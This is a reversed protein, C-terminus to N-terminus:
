LCPAAPPIIIFFMFVGDTGDDDIINDFHEATTGVKSARREVSARIFVTSMGFMYEEGALASKARTTAFFRGTSPNLLLDIRKRFGGPLVDSKGHRLGEPPEKVEVSM